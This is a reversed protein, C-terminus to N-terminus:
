TQCIIRYVEHATKEENQHLNLRTKIKGFIKKEGTCARKTQKRVFDLAEKKNRFTVLPKYRQLGETNVRMYTEENYVKCHHM